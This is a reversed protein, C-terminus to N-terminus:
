DVNKWHQLVQCVYLLVYNTGYTQSQSKPISPIVNEAVNVHQELEQKIGPQVKLLCEYMISPLTHSVSFRSHLLYVKIFLTNGYSIDRCPM